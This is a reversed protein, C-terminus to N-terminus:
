PRKSWAPSILPTFLPLMAKKGGKKVNCKGRLEISYVIHIFFCLFINNREGGFAIFPFAFFLTFSKELQRFAVDYLKFGTVIGIERFFHILDDIADLSQM